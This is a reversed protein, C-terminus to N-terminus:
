TDQMAGAGLEWSRENGGLRVQKTRPAVLCERNREDGGLRVQKTRLM